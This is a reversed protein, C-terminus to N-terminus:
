EVMGGGESDRGGERGEGGKRGGQKGEEMVWESLWGGESM